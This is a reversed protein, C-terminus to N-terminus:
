IKMESCWGGIRMKYSISFIVEEIGELGILFKGVMSIHMNSNSGWKHNLALNRLVCSIGEISMEYLLPKLKSYIGKYRFSIM